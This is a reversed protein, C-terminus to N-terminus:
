GDLRRATTVREEDKRDRWLKKAAGSRSSPWSGSWALM